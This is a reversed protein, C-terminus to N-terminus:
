DKLIAILRDKYANSVAQSSRPHYSFVVQAGKYETKFIYGNQKMFETNGYEKPYVKESLEPFEHRLSTNHWGLLVIHTPKILEVVERLIRTDCSHLQRRDKDSLARCKATNIVDINTWCIASNPFASNIARMRRWFASRYKRVSDDYFQSNIQDLIWKQCEPLENSYAYHYCKRSKWTAEEGVFLIRIDSNSWNELVGTCFINSFDGGLFQPSKEAMESRWKEYIAIIKANIEKATLM